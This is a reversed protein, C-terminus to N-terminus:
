FFNVLKVIVGGGLGDDTWGDVRSGKWGGM